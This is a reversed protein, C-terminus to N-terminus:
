FAHLLGRLVVNDSLKDDSTKRTAMSVANEKTAIIRYLHPMTVDRDPHSPFLFNSLYLSFSLFPPPTPSPRLSIVSRYALLGENLNYRYRYLYHCHLDSFGADEVVPICM